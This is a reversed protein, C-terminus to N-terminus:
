KLLLLFLLIAIVALWGGSVILFIAVGAIIAILALNGLYDFFSKFDAKRFWIKTRRFCDYMRSFVGCYVLWVILGINLIILLFDEM